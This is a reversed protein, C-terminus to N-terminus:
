VLAPSKVSVRIGESVADLSVTDGENIEGLIIKDAVKNEIEKQILRRLPRAGYEDSYGNEVLYDVLKKSWKLTINQDKLAM